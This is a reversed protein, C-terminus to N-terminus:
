PMLSFPQADAIRQTEGQAEVEATTSAEEWARGEDSIAPGDDGDAVVATVVGGAGPPEGPQSRYLGIGLSVAAVPLIALAIWANMGLRGGAPASKTLSM